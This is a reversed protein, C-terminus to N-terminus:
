MNLIVSGGDNPIRCGGDDDDDDDDDDMEVDNTM